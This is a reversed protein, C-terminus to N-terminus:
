GLNFLSSSLVLWSCAYLIGSVAVFLWTRFARVSSRRRYTAVLSAIWCFPSVVILVLLPYMRWVSLISYASLLHLKIALALLLCYAILIWAPICLFLTSLPILMAKNTETNTSANAPTAVDQASNSNNEKGELLQDLEKVMKHLKEPNKEESVENALQEWRTQDYQGWYRPGRDETVFEGELNFYLRLYGLDPCESGDLRGLMVEAEYHNWGTIGDDYTTYSRRWLVLEITRPIDVWKGEEIELTFGCKELFALANAIVKAKPIVIDFDIM